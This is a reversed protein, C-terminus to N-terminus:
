RWGSLRAETEHLDGPELQTTRGTDDTATKADTGIQQGTEVGVADFDWVIKRNIIISKESNFLMKDRIIDLLDGGVKFLMKDLSPADLAKDMLLNWEALRRLALAPDKPRLVATRQGKPDRHPALAATRKEDITLGLSTALRRVAESIM